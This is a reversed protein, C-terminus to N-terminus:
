AALEAETPNDEKIDRWSYETKNADLWARAKACTGCKPYCVLLM